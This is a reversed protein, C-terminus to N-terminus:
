FTTMTVNLEILVRRLRNVARMLALKPLQRLRAILDASDILVISREQAVARAEDSFGAIAIFWGNVDGEAVLSGFLERSLQKCRSDFNWQDHRVVVLSPSKM